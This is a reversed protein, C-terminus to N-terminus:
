AATLTRLLNYTIMRILSKKSPFAQVVRSRRKLERDARERVNSTRSRRHHAYPFGPYALADAEAEELLAAAKSCFGEIEECALHYLERVLDPDRESFVAHLIALVAARKRRTPACSAASRTLHVIRRRRAAGPSVEGTARRLGERADSTVCIVGDAGRERLSRLFAPWGACSEADVADLGPLRRCGDPGAGIATALACSSVHGADRCKIYAADPWICPFAVDSLDRGQLDLAIDDLSKCIRSVQSASMREIGMQAAVREIKRASVGPAVVESVAAVVARDARSYRVPLDEPFYSGRRLKPIRLSIAGVSAVLTRERCGNRQDGDACADEAQADMVENVISEAMIRIPEQINVMGDGFRPMDHGVTTQQKLSDMAAMGKMGFM